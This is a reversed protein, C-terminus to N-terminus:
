MSPPPTVDLDITIQVNHVAAQAVTEPVPQKQRDLQVRFYMADGPNHRIYADLGSTIVATDTCVDARGQYRTGRLTVHVRAGGQLNRWWGFPSYCVIRSGAQMYGIPFAYAKGSSRGRFSLIMLTDSGTVRHLRRSGLARLMLPNIVRHM